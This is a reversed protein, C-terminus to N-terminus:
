GSHRLSRGQSAVAVPEPLLPVSTSLGVRPPSGRPLYPIALGQVGREWEVSHPKRKEPGQSWHCKLAVSWVVVSARSTRREHDADAPEATRGRERQRPGADAREPEDIGVDDVDRVQGALREVVVAVDAARLDVDGGLPEAGDRGREPDDRPLAAERRAVGPPEAVEVDDEVAGVRDGRLEVHAVGGDRGAHREHMGARDVEARLEQRDHRALRGAVAADEFVRRRGVVHGRTLLGAHEAGDDRQRARQLRGVREADGHARPRV